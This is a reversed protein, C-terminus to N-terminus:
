RLEKLSVMVAMKCIEQTKYQDLVDLVVKIGM